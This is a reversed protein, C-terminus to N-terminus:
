LKTLILFFFVIAEMSSFKNPFKNGCMQCYWPLLKADHKQSILRLQITCHTSLIFLILSVNPVMQFLLYLKKRKINKKYYDKYLKLAISTTKEKISIVLLESVFHQAEFRPKTQFYWDRFYISTRRWILWLLEFIIKIHDSYFIIKKKLHNVSVWLCVCIM